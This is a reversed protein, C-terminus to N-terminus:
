NGLVEALIKEKEAQIAKENEETREAKWAPPTKIPTSVSKSTTAQQQNNMEILALVDYLMSGGAKEIAKALANAKKMYDLRAKQEPDVTQIHIGQSWKATNREQIKLLTLGESNHAVAKEISEKATRREEGTLKSLTLWHRCFSNLERPNSSIPALLERTQETLYKQRNRGVGGLEKGAQLKNGIQDIREVLKMAQQKRM